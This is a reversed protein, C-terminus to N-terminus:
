SIVGLICGDRELTGSLGIEVVLTVEKESHNTIFSEFEFYSGSIVYLPKIHYGNFCQSFIFDGYNRSGLILTGKASILDVVDRANFFKFTILEILFRDNNNLQNPRNLNTEAIDISSFHKILVSDGSGLTISKKSYIVSSIKETIM